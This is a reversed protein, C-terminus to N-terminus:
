SNKIKKVEKKLEKNLEFIIKNMRCVQEPVHFMSRKGKMFSYKQAPCIRCEPLYECLFCKNNETRFNDTKFEKYNGKVEQVRKEFNNNELDNMHGYYYNKKLETTNEWDLYQFSACGWLGGDPTITLRNGAAGCTNIGSPENLDFLDVIVRRSTKYELFVLEKVKSLQERFIELSNKNWFVTHDIGIGIDKVGENYLFEVSYFIKDVKEPTFVTNTSLYINKSKILKGLISKGNNFIEKGEIEDKLYVDFSFQVDFNNDNLFELIEDNILSGNTIISFSVKKNQAEGKKKIYYVCKNILNFKLLPEGGSFTINLEQNSNNLVYEVANKAILPDLDHGSASWQYCYSCKYNCNDTLLITLNKLKL